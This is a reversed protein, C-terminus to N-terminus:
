LSYAESEDLFQIKQLVVVKTVHRVMAPDRYRLFRAANKAFAIVICQLTPLLKIEDRMQSCVHTIALPRDESVLSIGRIALDYEPIRACRSENSVTLAYGSCVYAFIKNCLEAPLRLLPSSQQNQLATAEKWAKIEKALRPSLKQVEKKHRRVIGEIERAHEQQLGERVGKHRHLIPRLREDTSKLKHDSLRLKSEFFQQRNDQDDESLEDEDDCYLQGHYPQPVVVGPQSNKEQPQSVLHASQPEDIGSKPEVQKHQLGADKSQLENVDGEIQLNEEVTRLKVIMDLVIADKRAKKEQAHAQQLSELEAQHRSSM